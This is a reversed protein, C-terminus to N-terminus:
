PALRFPARAVKQDAADELLEHYIFKLLLWSWSKVLLLPSKTKAIYNAVLFSARLASANSSM